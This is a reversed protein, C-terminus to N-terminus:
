ESLGVAELAEARSGYGHFGIMKGDRFSTVQWVTQQIAVGSSAGQGAMRVEALVKDGYDATGLIQPHWDPFAEFLDDIYGRLGDHGKYVTGEVGILYSVIEVDPDAERVCAAKDRSRSAAFLRHVTEVNEQSM